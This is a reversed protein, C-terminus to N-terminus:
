EWVGIGNGRFRSDLGKLRWTAEWGMTMKLFKLPCTGNESTRGNVPYALVVAVALLGRLFAQMEVDVRSERSRMEASRGRVSATVM